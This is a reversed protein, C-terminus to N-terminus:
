VLNMCRNDCRMSNSGYRICTPPKLTMKTKEEHSIEVLRRAYSIMFNTARANKSLGLGQELTLVREETHSKGVLAMFGPSASDALNLFLSSM